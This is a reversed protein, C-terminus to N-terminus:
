REHDLVALPGTVGHEALLTAEVAGQATLANAISKAASIGGRRVLAPAAARIGSLALAHALRGADLGMLRGAIVPAVFASLSVGDWPGSRDMFGKFRSYVEYGVAIAALIDRGSNRRAEGAALAVAINDSPHGGIEPGRKGEGIVYDSLDLVRVLAGNALVAHAMDVTRSAGIITCPGSGGTEECVALISRCVAEDRGAIACGISDLLLLKAQDICPSPVDSSDIALTWRALTQVASERGSGHTNEKKPMVARYAILGAQPAYGGAKSRM